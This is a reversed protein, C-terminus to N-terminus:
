NCREPVYYMTAQWHDVGEDTLVVDYIVAGPNDELWKTMRKLLDVLPDTVNFRACEFYLVHLTKRM